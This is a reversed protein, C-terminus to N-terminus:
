NPECHIDYRAVQLARIYNKKALVMRATKVDAAIQTQLDAASDFRCEDRLRAIFFVEVRRGYLDATGDLLHAEIAPRCNTGDTPGSSAAPGFTPRIGINVVAERPPLNELGVAAAYVGVPPQVENDPTLNATPYGLRRGIGRGHRVTGLLSFPRGLLRAALDLQGTAVAERIRTSSVPRGNCLAPPVTTITVGNERAWRRLILTNGAAQKGFRWDRGIFLARWNPTERLLRDLFDTPNLSAWTRNFPLSLCGDVGMGSLLRAKHESSTLLPPARDPTLIKLPHDEFTLVWLAAGSLRAADLASKIVRQHGRHVGDFFGAALFVPGPTRAMEAFRTTRLM